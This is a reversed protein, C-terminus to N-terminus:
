RLSSPSTLLVFRLKSSLVLLLSVPIPSPLPKPTPSGKLCRESQRYVCILIHKIDTKLFLDQCVKFERAVNDSLSYSAERLETLETLKDAIRELAEVKRLELKPDSAAATKKGKAPTEEVAPTEPMTEVIADFAETLAIAYASATEGLKQKVVKNSTSQWRSYAEVLEAVMPELEDPYESCSKKDGSCNSCAKKVGKSKNCPKDLHNLFIYTTCHVCVTLASTPTSTKAPHGPGQKLTEPKEPSAPGKSGRTRPAM